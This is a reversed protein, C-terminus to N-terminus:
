TNVRVITSGVTASGDSYSLRGLYRTAPILGSWTATLTVPTGLTVPTSAPSVTMNGTATSGLSWTFQQIQQSTVGSALGFLEVYVDYAGATPNTLDVQEDTSSGASSGVLTTTGGRYVFVDVDTGAPVDSDFTAFRALTTGAPVNVTFKATHPSPQPNTTPFSAGSPNTLTAQNATAPVLGAVTTSLTGTFGPTVAVPTSGSTEGTGGTGNVQVPARLPLPRVALQSHVNHVGDSWDLGGFAYAGYPATTRTFKVTYTRVWGSPIDLKAPSVKVTFGPPATVTPRYTRDRNEINTVWRTVTQSGVLDGVAINPTNSDSPDISGYQQCSTSGAALQGTGCLYQVWDEFDSEYVLGPNMAGNANVQGSGYDFANAPGGTDTTIPNGKNDTRSATTMLASKIMMPTWDPHLQKFLLGIGAIHPASMSTGSLFDYNRGGHTGPSVAALVDVGPAMIDPKLIDGNAVSAPGRSSFSAVFPAEASTNKVGAALSATPNATGSVYAKVAPGDVNSLHVTPVAHFDANLSNPTLNVLVMGVGGAEMVAKSKDVRDNTGRDCVVIKGAVKAPDLYGEPHAPDWTTSFCLKLGAVGAGALGANEALVIPSSPVAAGLGSGSYTSGNGLTVSATFTRDHTGAAVTTLWPSNHAVTAAGPGSNGASASVFVGGDTAFLFALEVPDVNSTLSGSVSYNIVDVGDAVAENIAQVLDATSGSSTAGTHWLAKYVAIRAGPAMGSGNGLLNGNVVFPTNYDGAATSATHSGHGDIDRASAVEGVYPAQHIADNGGVGANYYKAGVIKNNCNSATWQEGTVCTGNWGQLQGPNNLSRFSANEPWLGSDIDGIVLSQGGGARAPGGLKSWIGNAADLGLFAPTSVTDATRIENKSVTMVGATKALEAATSSTMQAAFGNFSTTYDYIKGVNGVSNIVADHRAKLYGSYKVSDASRVDVKGGKAPMTRKYGPVKGTYGATPLDSMQVIYTATSEKPAPAAGAASPVAAAIGVVLGAGGLLAVVRRQTLRM